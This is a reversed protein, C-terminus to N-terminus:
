WGALSVDHADTLVTSLHAAVSRELRFAHAVTAERSREFLLELREAYVRPRGIDGRRCRWCRLLRIWRGALHELVCGQEGADELSELVCECSSDM